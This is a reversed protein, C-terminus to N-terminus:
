SFSNARCRVHGEFLRRATRYVVASRAVVPETGHQEVEADVHTVGSPHGIRLAGSGHRALAHPISGPLKAAVAVCLASTLPVARHPAGDSIIRVTLDVETSPFSQGSLSTFELPGAVMAVRPAGLLEGATQLDKAIGMRVSAVLRILAMRELLVRDAQLEDPMENGIKGLARADVFVCPNAADVLSAELPGFDPVLLSTRSAGTPLLLGTKAGGPDTFELRIPAGTGSVGDLVFDGDVLAEGDATAFRAVIIKQTNTNHIRVCATGDSAPLVLREDVAFPGIASSMNGCNASYDVSAKRVLVQAFTYDLDADARTAPGVVCVKSLSAVGGGMGDLQRGSPDPSGLVDLFIRDWRHRDAPLDRAHFVVAKSTGGRMFVAKIRAQQMLRSVTM